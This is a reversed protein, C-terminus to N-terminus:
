TQHPLNGWHYGDPFDFFMMQSAKWLNSEQTKIESAKIRYAQAWFDTNKGHGKPIRIEAISVKLFLQGLHLDRLTDDWAVELKSISKSILETLDM